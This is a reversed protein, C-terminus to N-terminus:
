KPTLLQGQGADAKSPQGPPTITGFLSNTSTVNPAAFVAHNVPNFADTKFQLNFKSGGVVTNLFRPQINILRNRSLPLDYTMTVTIRTPRDFPSTTGRFEQAFTAAPLALALLAPAFAKV